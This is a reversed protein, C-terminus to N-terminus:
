GELARRRIAIDGLLLALAVPILIWDLPHEVTRRAGRREVLDDLSANLSGGTSSTIERLFEADPVKRVLEAAGADDIAADITLTDRKQAVTKDGAKRTLLLGYRGPSLPPLPARFIRPAVPTLVLDTSHEPSTFIEAAITTEEVDQFTQV